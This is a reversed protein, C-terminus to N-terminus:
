NQNQPRSYKSRMEMLKKRRTEHFQQQRINQQQKEAQTLVETLTNLETDPHESIFRLLTQYNNVMQAITAADFLDLSYELSGYLTGEADWMNLLLDLKAAPQSEERVRLILGPVQVPPMPANQLVFKVQFLPIHGASRDPNLAEVLREFPLDEHMYAGLTVERVRRVVEMFTPAGSLDTRLVWQNVFFGILGELVTRNRNAVDTGVVIDDQGSYWRLLVKFAALLTMFLTAGARRSIAKLESSVDAPLVFSQSGGRFTRAPPRLKDLPLKLSPLNALQRQWYTLQEELLEGQLRQRQWVAFDAYQIPLPPLPSPEGKAFAEYHVSLERFFIGVTWGDFIIHHLNLLLLHEEEELRLLSAHLLPGEEIDFGRMAHEKTLRSTQAKRQEATLKRLDVVPLMLTLAPSIIQVPQGDVLGFTTRLVEHRRIVENLADHLAALNLRGTIEIVIPINYATLGPELENVFWLRQQAFSLPMARNRPAPQIANLATDPAARRALEIRKAFAAIKPAEFLDRVSLEAQLAERVRAVVQAALLSHGGLTFFDDDIGVQEIGLVDSWISTLVEEIPTRAVTMAVASQRNREPAPLAKRDIKGNSTLPMEELFVFFSPLMYQPLSQQLYSRLEDATLSHGRKTTLYAVLSKDGAVDERAVVVAEDINEHSRCAAEIEGLEIRLGRVKVQHDIRGLFEVEGDSLFRALDGTRYLRGGRRKGFTDPIFKEATLEPRNFYGRALGIGGIFLEGAVGVPAPRWERDLIYIETNAIPRGIPVVRRTGDRECAWHTVDVSAETPGYLNHLEVEPLLSYFREKLEYSLAEGSCIVRKLSAARRADAQALFAHLMSPVFHLTTIHEEEIVSALYAADQHGGPRAMVLRAGVMLPWFFEWVSVDFSHPTKQLVSDSPSLGYAEQMWLLRNVIGEHTNMVGKPRGMSGSTYIVYALNAGSLEVGLNDAGERAITEWEADLSIVRAAHRVHLQERLRAQTLVVPVRTEELMFALRQPPYAPDLPLYAAGAKLIGLLAVVLEVSREMLVGVLSEPGVGLGRLHHALQNARGNLEGYTSREDGFVVAVADPTRAAQAEFLQHLSQGRPYDARTENWEVLLQHREENTLLPLNSLREDPHAAIGELLVQFHQIMRTVTTKEFLDTNYEFGGFIEDRGDDMFLALDFKALQNDLPLPRITLEPMQFSQKPVNQQVFLVQFLPARSMDREPRLEEVLKEFPLDQHAFAGLAVQRIQKLFERFTPNGAMNSRLVLTNVFFGILGEIEKRNRNAIPTGVLIDEQGTYRYLLTKFAALLMMFLSVGEQHALARLSESLRKPLLFSEHEGYFTQVSPRPRDTPLNLIPLEGSLHQKWYSLQRELVEGRLWERQWVAFDGYQVRLEPLTSPEGRLVSQYLAGIERILVGTSWGDSVIHHMCLVLLHQEDALRLLAARILPGSALNFPRQAVDAALRRAKVQREAEPEGRLEVVQLPLRLSPAVIQVPQSNLTSFTTRLIEHRKIMENLAGELAAINLAGVLHYASPINYVASQPEFQDLFWLREQAFSLPFTHQGNRRPTVPIKSLSPQQEQSKLKLALLMRKEPSLNALRDAFDSM